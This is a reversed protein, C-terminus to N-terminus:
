FSTGALKVDATRWAKVFRKEAEAADSTRKQARLSAALGYLGWGNEPNRELDARYVAEAETARGSKLLVNGLSHRIPFYWDPPEDYRLGDEAEVAATLIRVADDIAGRAASIEADLVDRAITLLTKASNLFELAEPPTREAVAAVSDREVAAEALKGTGALALGRAHRWMAVAFPFEAPPSPEALVEEWRGFRALTLVPMDLAADMGPMQRYMEMPIQALAGRAAELAERSRGEMMCTAWLFQYNHAVYTMYFGDRSSTELYKRDSAIAKRNAEAADGYRGVNVYIHSPMHVLHAAGPMMPGVRDAAAEAKEPHPSAEVAHIYFHNAGPHDPNRALISELTSVIEETGPQPKGDQTWFDWPRLDMMAEAFFTQVDLDDPFRHAVVRMADAYAQDLKKQGEPDTPPPDSYRKTMAEILAREVESANAELAKARTIAANAAKTREPIGPLNIHPGLSFAVGWWCMASTSDLRTAEEFSRQAEELNFAYMLRLGQDFFMQADPSATTITRHYAGLDDYLVAGAPAKRGHAHHEHGQASARPTIALVPVVGLALVMRFRRGVSILRSM